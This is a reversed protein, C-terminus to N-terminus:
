GSTTHMPRNSGNNIEKTTILKEKVPQKGCIPCKINNDVIRSCDLCLYIDNNNIM